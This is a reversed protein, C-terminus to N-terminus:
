RLADAIQHVRAATDSHWGITIMARTAGAAEWQALAAKCLRNLGYLGGAWLRMILDPPIRLRHTRILEVLERLLVTLGNSLVRYHTSAPKM